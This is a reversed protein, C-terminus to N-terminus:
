KRKLEEREKKRREVEQKAKLEKKIFSLEFIDINENGEAIECLYIPINFVEKYDEGNEFMNENDEEYFWVVSVAQGNKYIDKIKELISFICKLTVGNCYSLYFSVIFTNQMRTNLLILEDLFSLVPRYFATMNERYSQGKFVLYNKEKDFKVLPTAKTAEILFSEM